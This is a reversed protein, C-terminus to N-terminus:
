GKRDHFPGKSSSFGKPGMLPARRARLTPGEAEFVGRRPRSTPGEPGLPPGTLPRHPPSWSSGAHALWDVPQRRRRTTRVMPGLNRLCLPLARMHGQRARTGAQPVLHLANHEPRLHPSALEHSHL